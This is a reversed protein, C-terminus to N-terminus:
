GGHIEPPPEDHEPEPEAPRGGCDPCTLDQQQAKAAQQEANVAATASCV